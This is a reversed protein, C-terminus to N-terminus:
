VASCRFQLPIQRDAPNRTAGRPQEFSIARRRRRSM